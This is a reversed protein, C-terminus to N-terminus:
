HASTAVNVREYVNVGDVNAVWKYHDQILPWISTRRLPYYKSGRVDANTTDAIFTPLHQHMDEELMKWAGPMGDASTSLGQQRGGSNGTLFGTHIFRTGPDLGSAWYLEPLQGWVFLNSGHPALRMIRAAIAPYSATPRARLTLLGAAVFMASPLAIAVTIWKRFTGAALPFSGAALLALPPLLHLYYHGFFRFGALVAVVGSFLWLWLDINDRQRQGFAALLVLFIIGVNFGIFAWSMGFGRLLMPLVPGVVKLYGRNGSVTWLLFQAPGFFAATGVVIAGCTLVCRTVAKRGQPILLWLMPLLTVFATQKCLMAIALCAGALAPRRARSALVAGTLPLLMFLEFTAAQTDAPFSSVSLALFLLGAVLGRRRDKFRREAEMALLLATLALVVVGLARVPRLDRSGTIKFVAAYVYPVVPPKRDATQHYLTGGDDIVMAMSALSAEDSSFLKGVLAPVHLVASVLLLVGFQALRRKRASSVQEPAITTM